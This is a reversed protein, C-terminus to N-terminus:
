LTLTIPAMYGQAAPENSNDPQVEELAESVLQFRLKQWVSGTDTELDAKFVRQFRVQGWGLPLTVLYQVIAMKQWM